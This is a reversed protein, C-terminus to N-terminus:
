MWGFILRTVDNYLAFVMLGMLLMLGVQQAYEMKKLSLPSGKIAEIGYFVLHGGDLVPVPLLNLIFLNISIIAMMTLFKSLGLKMTEGAAQGISLIGGVTKHSIEGEFLRVFSLLTLVSFDWSQRFGAMIAEGPHSTSTIVTEPNAYALWPVIGITFRRDESGYATMQATVQPKLRLTKSEGDRVFDITLGDKIEDYSSVTTLVDTWKLVPKGDISMLRDGEMLGAQAAPSNPIVKALYLESSELRLGDFGNQFLSSAITLNLIEPKKGDQQYREAVLEVPQSLDVIQFAKSLDRYKEIKTSGVSVIRDGTRLGLAHLPSGAPVGVMSAKSLPTLGEIDGVVSKTTLPNPNKKSEITSSIDTGTGDTHAVAFRVTSGINEDILRSVDDFTKVPEGDISLITDGSRFGALAAKSGAEVDGIVPSRQEIGMMSVLGFILVAFFLNMLPGALVISIRQWVTKHTFSFHKENDPVTSGPQDGFMKVYGGLPILSICYTTDGVEKKWIKRGFGLSFVEVRVGCWRAVLFHGLEHVFILIGLLIVCAIVYVSSNQLFGILSEM